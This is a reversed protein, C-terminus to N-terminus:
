PALASGGSGVMGTHVSLDKGYAISCVSCHARSANWPSNTFAGSAMRAKTADASESCRDATSPSAPSASAATAATRLTSACRSSVSPQTRHASPRKLSQNSSETLASSRCYGGPCMLSSPQGKQLPERRMGVGVGKLADLASCTANTTAAARSRARVSPKFAESSARCALRACATAGAGSRLSAPVGPSASRRRRAEM